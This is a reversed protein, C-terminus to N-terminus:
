QVDSEICLWSRKGDDFRKWRSRHLTNPHRGRGSPKSFSPCLSMLTLKAKSAAWLLLQVISRAAFEVTAALGTVTETSAFPLGIDGLTGPKRHMARVACYERPPESYTIIGDVPSDLSSDFKLPVILV